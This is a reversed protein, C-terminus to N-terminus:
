KKTKSKKTDPNKYQTEISTGLTGLMDKAQQAFTGNPALELYKQFAEVTGPVPTVKGDAGIQAKSVLAVGYQYYADPYPPTAEM